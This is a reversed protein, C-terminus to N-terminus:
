AWSGLHADIQADAAPERRQQAVVAPLDLQHVRQQEGQGARGHEIVAILDAHPVVDVQAVAVAHARGHLPAGVAVGSEGAGIRLLEIRGTVMSGPTGSRLTFTSAWCFLM